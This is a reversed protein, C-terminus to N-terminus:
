RTTQGEKKVSMNRAMEVWFDHHTDRECPEGIERIAYQINGRLHKGVLGRGTFFHNSLDLLKQFQFNPYRKRGQKNSIDHWPKTIRITPM